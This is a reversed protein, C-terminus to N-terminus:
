RLRAHWCRASRQPRPRALALTHPVTMTPLRGRSGALPMGPAPLILGGALRHSSGEVV